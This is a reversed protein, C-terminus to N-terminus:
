SDTGLGWLTNPITDVLDTTQQKLLRLDYQHNCGYGLTKDYYTRNEDWQFYALDCYEIINCGVVTGNTTMIGMM